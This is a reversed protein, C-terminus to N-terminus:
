SGLNHHSCIYCELLIISVHRIVIYSIYVNSDTSRSGSSSTSPSGWFASKVACKTLPSADVRARDICLRAPNALSFPRNSQINTAVLKHAACKTLPSADFRAGDIRLRARDTVSM